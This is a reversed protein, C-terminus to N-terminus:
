FPTKLQESCEINEVARHLNSLFKVQLEHDTVEFDDAPIQLLAASYRGLDEESVDTSASSFDSDGGSESGANLTRHTSDLSGTEQCVSVSPNEATKSLPTMVTGEENDNVRSKSSITPRVSEENRKEPVNKEAFGTATCSGPFECIDKNM